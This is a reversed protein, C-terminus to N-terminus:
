FEFAVGISMMMVDDPLDLEFREIEGRVSVKWAEVALGVGWALDTGDDEIRINPLGLQEPSSTEVKSDWAILGGKAFLSVPGIPLRGVLFADFGDTESTARILGSGDTVTGLDRYSAEIALPGLLELGVFLKFAFDEDDISFDSSDVDRFDVDVQSQGLSVGVYPGIEAHITAAVFALTLTAALARTKRTM